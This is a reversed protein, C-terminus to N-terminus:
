ANEGILFPNTRKEHGVTTSPGHGPHVTTDDPLPFLKERISGLLQPMSGQWLDTRGISGQFLVDGGIVFGNDRDYFCVHGPSHGPTHLTEWRAGGFAVATGEELTLEPEPLRGVEVGFLQAQLEVAEYLPLEAPHLRWRMGFQRTFYACGLVHDIHAHTLLLHRVTLSNRTLYDLVARREEETATGPDILVAEGQQHCVYCNEAFPSVTFPKVTM